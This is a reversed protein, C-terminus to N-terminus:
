KLRTRALRREMLFLVALLLACIASLLRGAAVDATLHWDVTLDLPGANVPVAMLGDSRLPLNKIAAGNVTVRWAPFNLLRLVLFGARDMTAHLRLHEPSPSQDFEPFAALCGPQESSWVPNSGPEDPNPKGLVMAPDTVLCAAPLGTAIQTLDAGPPAYEFMGEFGAGSHYAGLTSAVTDEVDCVQFFSVAAYVTAAAFATACAIAVPVRWRHSVPWVAAAFFIAM